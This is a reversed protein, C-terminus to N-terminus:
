FEEPKCSAKHAAHEQLPISQHYGTCQDVPKVILISAAAKMYIYIYVYKSAVSIVKYQLLREEM